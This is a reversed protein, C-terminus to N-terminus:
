ASLDALRQLRKAENASLWIDQSLIEHAKGFYPAAEGASGLDLLCEAIEEFVYGSPEGIAAYEAELGRQQELARETQGLTRLCRAVCWRAVREPEAQGANSRLPVAAEFYGLATEPEGRDHYTWGINNYLSALWKRAKPDSSTSAIELARLNWDLQEQGEAVIALMHAADVALGDDLGTAMVLAAEFHARAADPSGASNLVRGRELRLRVNAVSPGPGVLAEAEALVTHAEDFRRRLGLARALQTLLIARHGMSLAPRELEARFRMESEEPRTFDWLADIDPGDM